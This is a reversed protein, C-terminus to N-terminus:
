KKEREAEAKDANTFAEKFSEAVAVDEEYGDEFVRFIVCAEYNEPSVEGDKVRYVLKKEVFWNENISQAKTHAEILTYDREAQGRLLAQVKPSLEYFYIDSHAMGDKDCQAEGVVDDDKWERPVTPASPWVKLDALREKAMNQIYSIYAKLEKFHHDNYGEAIQALTKKAFDLETEERTRPATPEPQNTPM